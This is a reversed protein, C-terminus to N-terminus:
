MNIHAFQFIEGLINIIRLRDESFINYNVDNELYILGTLREKYTLPTCVLSCIREKMLYM